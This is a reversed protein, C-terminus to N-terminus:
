VFRPPPPEVAHAILRPPTPLTRLPEVWRDPTVAIVPAHAPEMPSLVQIPDRQVGGVTTTHCADNGITPKERHMGTMTHAGAHHTRFLCLAACGVAPQALLFAVLTALALAGRHRARLAQLM